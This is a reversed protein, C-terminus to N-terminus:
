DDKSELFRRILPLSYSKHWREPYRGPSFSKDPSSAHVDKFEGCFSALETRSIARPKEAGNPTYAIGDATVRFTFPIEQPGTEWEDNEHERAYAFLEAVTFDHM